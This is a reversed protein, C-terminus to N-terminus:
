SELGELVQEIRASRSGKALLVDGVEVLTRLLEVAKENSAALHCENVGASKASDVVWGAAEGGVAVLCGVGAEAAAKGAREHGERSLEGLEAMEGLVAIKRGKVSLEKLVGFAAAMSDPNANYTDDIITVERVTRLALRGKPLRAKGLGAACAALDVGLARGVATALLANRIMHTGHARLVVRESAEGECLTFQTGESTRQVDAATIDGRSFGTSIRRGSFAGEIQGAYDDEADYVLTGESPLERVLELKEACIAARSGLNEIHAVGINTIMAVSPRILGALPRIEGAHNMGVEFVGVEHQDDAALISLPVGIHNNFNGATATVRYKEALIAASFDKASTKGNSGTIGVTKLNLAARHAAALAHLARLTQPVEVVAFDEPLAPLEFIIINPEIVAGTCGARFAEEIFWHGDFADGRIALFLSGKAAKRSDISLGDIPIDARGQKITGGIAAAVDGVTKFTKMTIALGILIVPLWLLVNRGSIFLSRQTM